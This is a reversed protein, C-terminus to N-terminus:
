CRWSGKLSRLYIRIWLFLLFSAIVASIGLLSRLENFTDMVGLLCQADIKEQKGQDICRQLEQLEPYGGLSRTSDKVIAAGTRMAVRAELTANEKSM